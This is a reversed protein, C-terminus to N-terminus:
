VQCAKKGAASGTVNLPHFAGPVPSGPQPGSKLREAAVVDGALLAMTLSVGLAYRVNM